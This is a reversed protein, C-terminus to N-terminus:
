KIPFLENNIIKRNPALHFLNLLVVISFLGTIPNEQPSVFPIPGSSIMFDRDSLRMSSKKVGTIKPLLLTM